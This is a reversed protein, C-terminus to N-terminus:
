IRNVALKIQQELYGAVAQAIRNTHRVYAFDKGYINKEARLTREDPPGVYIGMLAIGKRRLDRVQIAAHKVGPDTVQGTSYSLQAVAGYPRFYANIVNSPAGDSVVIMVKHEEGRRLLENGCIRIAYSDRNDGLADYATVRQNSGCDDDFDRYRQIVMHSNTNCFAEVRLPIGLGAITETLVYAVRRM